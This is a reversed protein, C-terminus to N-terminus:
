AVWKIALGLQNSWITFDDDDVDGDQDADGHEFSAYPLGYNELWIDYDQGDIFGDANFDAYYLHFLNIGYNEQWFANDASNTVGDGNYDAMVFTHSPGGQNSQWIFFDTGNVHNSQNADGPLIMFVFHFNGGATGNGSPFRSVAPNTTFISFPNTWEGDLKRGWEDKVADTLSLLYPNATFPANFKWSYELTSPNFSFGSSPPVLAVYTRLGTLGLSNSAITGVAESFQLSVTDAGGVPVTRLQIGSGDFDTDDNPGNFSFPLHTSESGSITVNTVKLLGVEHAGIDIRPGGNGDGDLVRSFGTGRQDFEPVGNLGAVANPNGKDIVFSNFLPAHTQTPGGHFALPSLLPDIPTSVGIQNGTIDTLNAGTSIGIFSYSTPISNTSLNTIDDDIQNGQTLRLNQAVFTNKLTVTILTPLPDGNQDLNRNRGVFIGGGVAAEGFLSLGDGDVDASNEVITSNEFSVDLQTSNDNVIAIGGGVGDSQNGSITTNSFKVSRTTNGSDSLNYLYVGGGAGNNPDGTGQSLNRSINGSITTGEVMFQAGNRTGLLLGSPGDLSTIGDLDAVNDSITSEKINVNGGSYISIGGIDDQAYNGTITSREITITGDSDIRGAAFNSERGLARNKDIVSDYIGVIAASTSQSIFLGADNASGGRAENGTIQSNRIEVRVDNGSSHSQSVYLGDGQGGSAVFNDTIGVYELSLHGVGQFALGGGRGNSAGVEGSIFSGNQAFVADRAMARADNSADVSLGGGKNGADNSIFSSGTDINLHAGSLEAYMGGGNFVATNNSVITSESIYFTDSTPSGISGSVIAVGGGTSAFNDDIISNEIRLVERPTTGGGAVRVYVAGGRDAENEELTSDRIVLRAESRIAGGENAVDGGTLTLGILIVESPSSGNSIDTINFIRIGQGTHTPTPDNADITLSDLASADITLTTGSRSYMMQGLGVSLGIRQNNLSSAFKITNNSGVSGNIQNTITTNDLGNTNGQQVVEMAERLTLVGDTNIHTDGFSNVTLVALLHRDELPEIRLSRRLPKIQFCGPKRRTFGLKTLLTNWGSPLSRM